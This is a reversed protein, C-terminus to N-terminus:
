TTVRRVWLHTPEYASEQDQRKWARHLMLGTEHEDKQVTALENNINDVTKKIEARSAMDYAISSPQVVNTLEHLVTKLNQRRRRLADLKAELSAVLTTAAAEDPSKPM